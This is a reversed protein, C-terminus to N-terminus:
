ASVEDGVLVTIPINVSPKTGYAYLTLSGTTQTGTVVSLNMWANAISTDTSNLVVNVDNSSTVGTVSVTYTYPVGYGSWSGSSLTIDIKKYRSAKSNLNSNM